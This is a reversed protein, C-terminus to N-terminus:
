IIQFLAITFVVIILLFVSSIIFGIMQEKSSEEKLGMILYIVGVIALLFSVLIAVVLTLNVFELKMDSIFTFVSFALIFFILALLSFNFGIKTKSKQM